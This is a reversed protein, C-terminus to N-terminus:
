DWEYIFESRIKSWRIVAYGQMGGNMHGPCPPYPKAPITFAWLQGKPANTLFQQWGANLQGFPVNPVRNMPDTIMGAAEAEAITVRQTLHSKKCHFLKLQGHSPFRDKLWDVLVIGLAFPWVAVVLMIFLSNLPVRWPGSNPWEIHKSRNFYLLASLCLVAGFLVYSIVWKGIGLASFSAM